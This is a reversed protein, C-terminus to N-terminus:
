HEPRDADAGVEAASRRRRLVGLGLLGSALLLLSAPEPVQHLQGRIEGGPFLNTHINFYTNGALLEDILRTRALEVTGGSATIFAPNYSPELALDFVQLYSGTTVGLPFGPVPIAVGANVGAAACCHIHAAVTMGLLASFFVDVTMMNGVLTVTATGFGPTPVPPEEQNGTLNGVFVQASAPSAALTLALGAAAVARSSRSSASM